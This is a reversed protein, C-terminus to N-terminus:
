KIKSLNNDMMSQVKELIQEKFGIFSAALVVVIGLIILISIFNTDGREDTMMTAMKVYFKICANRIMKNM